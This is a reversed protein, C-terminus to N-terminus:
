KVIMSIMQTSHRETRKNQSKTIPNSHHDFSHIIIQVFAVIGENSAHLTTTRTKKPTEVSKQLLYKSKKKKKKLFYKILFKM